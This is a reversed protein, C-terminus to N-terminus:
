PSQHAAGRAAALELYQTRRPESLRGFLELVEEWLGASAAVDLLEGLRDEPLLAVVEDLQDDDEAVFTAQLMTEADMVKLAAVSAETSLRGLFRGLTVYEARRSLEAAVEVIQNSPIGVIVEGARRPDIHVAVDSLFPTSLKSAVEVARSPELMGALQAVLVPGLAREAILAILSVPLLRSAAALRGLAQSHADFLVETIQDRLERLEAPDAELLYGLSDAERGLLRALKLVEARAATARSV